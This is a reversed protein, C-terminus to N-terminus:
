IEFVPSPTPSTVQRGEPVFYDELLYSQWWTLMWRYTDVYPRVNAMIGNGYEMFTGGGAFHSVMMRRV